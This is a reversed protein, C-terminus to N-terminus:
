WTPPLLRFKPHAGKVVSNVRNLLEKVDLPEQLLHEARATTNRVLLMAYASVVIIPIDSAPQREKLRRLVELSSRMPLALELLIVDPQIQAARCLGTGADAALEVNYGEDVLFDAILWRMWADDDIVLVTGRPNGPEPTTPAARLSRM